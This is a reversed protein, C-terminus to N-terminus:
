VLGAHALAFAFPAGQSFGVCAPRALELQGILEAIDATWTSFSKRPDFDSRGLGPRDISVLRVGLDHAVDTGFGLSGSMGAGTCFLVCRGNEPGWESWALKRSDRLAIHAQREPSQISIDSM